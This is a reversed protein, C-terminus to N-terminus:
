REDHTLSVPKLDHAREVADAEEEWGDNTIEAVGPAM